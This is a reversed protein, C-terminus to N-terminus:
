AAGHGHHRLPPSDGYYADKYQLTDGVMRLSRSDPFHAPAPFFKLEDEASMFCIKVDNAYTTHAYRLPGLEPGDFGWDDMDEDPDKRGHFLHLYLDPM